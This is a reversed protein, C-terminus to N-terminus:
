SSRGAADPRWERQAAASERMRRGAGKRGALSCQGMGRPEAGAGTKVPLTSEGGGAGGGAADTMGAATGRPLTSDAGLAGGGRETKNAPHSPRSPTPSCPTPPPSSWKCCTRWCGQGHHQHQNTAARPSRRVPRHRALPPPPPCCHPTVKQHENMSTTQRPPVRHRGWSKAHHAALVRATARDPHPRPARARRPWPTPRRAGGREGDRNPQWTRVQLPAARGAGGAMGGGWPVRRSGRTHGCTPVHGRRQRASAAAAGVVDLPALRPLSAHRRQRPTRPQRPPPALPPAAAVETQVLRGYIPPPAAPCQWWGGAGWRQVCRGKGGRGSGRLV